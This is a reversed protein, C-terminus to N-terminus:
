TNNLLVRCHVRSIEQCRLEVITFVIIYYLLRAMGFLPSHRSPCASPVGSFDQTNSVVTYKSVKYMGGDSKDHIITAYM